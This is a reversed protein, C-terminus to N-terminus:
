DDVEHAVIAGDDPVTEAATEAYSLGLASESGYQGLIDHLRDGSITETTEPSDVPGVGQLLDEAGAIDDFSVSCWRTGDTSLRSPVVTEAKQVGDHEFRVVYYPVQLQTPEEEPLPADASDLRHDDIRELLQDQRDVYDYIQQVAESTTDQVATSREEGVTANHGQLLQWSTTVRETFPREIGEEFEKEDIEFIHSGLERIRESATQDLEQHKEAYREGISAVREDLESRETRIQEHEAEIQPKVSKVEMMHEMLKLEAQAQINEHIAGQVTQAAETIATKIKKVEGTLKQVDERLRAVTENIAKLPQHLDDNAM